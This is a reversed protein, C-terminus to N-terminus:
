QYLRDRWEQFRSLTKGDGIFLRHQLAEDASGGAVRQSILLDLFGDHNFDGPIVSVIEMQNEAEAVADTKVYKDHDPFLLFSFFLLFPFHM